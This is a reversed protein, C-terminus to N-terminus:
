PVEIDMWPQQGATTSTCPPMEHLLHLLLPPKLWVYPFPWSMSSSNNDTVNKRILNHQKGHEKKTQTSLQKEITISLVM